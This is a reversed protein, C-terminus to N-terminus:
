ELFVRNWSSCSPIWLREPVVLLHKSKRFSNALARAHIAASCSLWCVWSLTGYQTCNMMANLSMLWHLVITNCESFDIRVYIHLKETKSSHLKYQSSQQSLNSWRLGHHTNWFIKFCLNTVFLSCVSWISIKFISSPGQLKQGGDSDTM